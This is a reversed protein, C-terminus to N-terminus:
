LQEYIVYYLLLSTHSNKLELLCRMNDQYFLRIELCLKDLLRTEYM